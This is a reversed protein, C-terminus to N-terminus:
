RNTAETYAKSNGADQPQESYLEPQPQQSQFVKHPDSSAGHALWITVIVGVAGSIAAIFAVLFILLRMQGKLASIFDLIGERGNGFLLVHHENVKDKMVAMVADPNDPWEIEAVGV